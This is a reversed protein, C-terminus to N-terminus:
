VDVASKFAKVMLQPVLYFQVLFALTCWAVYYESLVFHFM